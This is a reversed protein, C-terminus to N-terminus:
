ETPYSRHKIECWQEPRAFRPKKMQRGVAPEAIDHALSQSPEAHCTARLLRVHLPDPKMRKLPPRWGRWSPAGSSSRNRVISAVSRCTDADVCFWTREARRAGHQAREIAAPRATWVSRRLVLRQQARQCSSRAVAVRPRKSVKRQGSNEGGREQWTLSDLSCVMRSAARRQM